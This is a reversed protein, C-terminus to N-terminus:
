NNVSIALVGDIISKFTSATFDLNTNFRLIGNGSLISIPGVIFDTSPITAGGIAAFTPNTAWLICWAGTGTNPNDSATPFQSINIFNATENLPHTWQTNVYHALCSANSSKYNAWNTIIDQATPQAGSYVTIACDTKFGNSLIGQNLILKGINPHFHIM